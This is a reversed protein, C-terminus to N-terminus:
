TVLVIQVFKGERTMLLRWIVNSNLQGLPKLPSSTQFHQGFYKTHIKALKDYTPKVHFKLEM